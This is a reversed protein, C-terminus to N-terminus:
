NESDLDDPMIPVEMGYGAYYIGLYATFDTVLHQAKSDQVVRSGVNNCRILISPMALQDEM